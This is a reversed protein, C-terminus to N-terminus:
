QINEVKKMTGKLPGYTNKVTNVFNSMSTRDHKYCLMYCKWIIHLYWALNNTKEGIYLNPIKESELDKRTAQAAYKQYEM